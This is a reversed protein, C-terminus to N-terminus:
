AIGGLFHLDRNNIGIIAPGHRAAEDMEEASHVEVLADMGLERTVHLLSSLIDSSLAAVILLVADAGAAAAELIQIEDVIFDKRLIPIRVTSRITRLDDMSGHFYEEETLVSIAAAGGEEYNRALEKLTSM